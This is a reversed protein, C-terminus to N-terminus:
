WATAAPSADRSAVDCTEPRSLCDVVRMMTTYKRRAWKENFFAEREFNRDFEDLAETRIDKLTEKILQNVRRQLDRTVQNSKEAM